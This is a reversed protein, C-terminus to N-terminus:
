REIGFCKYVKRIIWHYLGKCPWLFAWYHYLIVVYSLCQIKRVPKNKRNKLSM